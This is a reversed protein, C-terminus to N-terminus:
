SGQLFRECELAAICGSGAATIAQRFKKDKVDGCAFVGEISTQSSDPKTIIYGESDVEVQGDLFDVNPKHGIAYFLGRVKIEELKGTKLNKVKIGELFNEGLADEVVSDWLIKIKPHTTVKQQMAKSARFADRRHILLVESAFHTLYLAEEMATDGGGVVALVQNRFFPLGGDCVACASIGKNWLKAESPLNLKKATAGTAIILSEAEIVRGSSEIKFPKEKLNVKVVDESLFRTGYKEAQAKIKMMLEPGTIGEPFGPFNEIETTTMLQGGAVGGAIFGEICLPSLMARSLYICATLGAPGSGIVVVKEM